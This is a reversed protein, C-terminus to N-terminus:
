GTLPRLRSNRTPIPRAPPDIFATPPPPENTVSGDSIVSRQDSIATPTGETEAFAELLTASKGPLRALVQAQM